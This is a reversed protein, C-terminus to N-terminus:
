LQLTCHPCLSGWIKLCSTCLKHTTSDHLFLMDKKDRDETCIKCYDLEIDCWPCITCSLDITSTCSCCKKSTCSCQVCYGYKLNGDPGCKVCHYCRKCYINGTTYSITTSFQITPDKCTTCEFEKVCSCISITHYCVRQKLLVEVQATVTAGKSILFAATQYRFCNPQLVCELVSINLMSHLANINAGHDLLLTIMEHNGNQAATHLPTEDCKDLAGEICADCEILYKTIAYCNHLVALHLPTMWDTVHNINVGCEILNQVITFNHEEIAKFLLKNM